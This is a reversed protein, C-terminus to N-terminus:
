ENSISAQKEPVYFQIAGDKVKIEFVVGKIDKIVEDDVHAHVGEWTITLEKAKLISFSFPTNGDRLKDWVYTAFKERESEAILIVEFEGDNTNALPNLDLNPGLSPTNMVEVLLFNGSHDVGDILIQCNKAKYNEIIDHLVHLANDIREEPSVDKKDAGDRMDNMLKPFVGFGFGELFYMPRDLGSIKGVDFKRTHEEHWSAIIDAEKGAIELSKGINNATGKPLLAMPYKLDNELLAVSVKRVTGDGGAVILFDVEPDIDKWGKEKVSSYICKFGKSEILKILKDESHEKDGAKPNHLLNVTKM